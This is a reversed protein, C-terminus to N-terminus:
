SWRDLGGESAPVAEGGLVLFQDLRDPFITM